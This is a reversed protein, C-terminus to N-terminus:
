TARRRTPAADDGHACECRRHVSTALAMPICRNSGPERTPRSRWASSVMHWRAGAPPQSRTVPRGPSPASAKSARTAAAYQFAVNQKCGDPSVSMRLAITSASRRPQMGTSNWWACRSTHEWAAEGQTRARKVRATSSWSAGGRCLYPRPVPAAPHCVRGHQERRALPVKVAGERSNRRAPHLAHAVRNSPVRVRHAVALLSSLVAALVFSDLMIGEFDCVPMAVATCGTWVHLSGAVLHLPACTHLAPPLDGLKVGKGTRCRLTDAESV